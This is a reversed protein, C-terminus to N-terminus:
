VNSGQIGRWNLGFAYALNMYGQFYKVHTKDDGFNRMESETEVLEILCQKQMTNVIFWNSTSALYSNAVPTIGKGKLTNKANNATDSQLTSELIREIDFSADEQTLLIKKGDGVGAPLGVDNPMKRGQIIAAELSEQAISVAGLHNSATGGRGLKHSTSVLPQGDPHTYDTSFANGFVDAALTEKTAVMSESIMDPINLAERLKSASGRKIYRWTEEGVGIMLARPKVSIRLMYNQKPTDTAVQQFEEKVPMTGVGTYSTFDEFPQTTKISEFGCTKYRPTSAMDKIRFSNNIRNTLAEDTLQSASLGTTAM